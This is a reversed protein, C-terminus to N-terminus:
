KLIDEEIFKDQESQILLATDLINETRQDIIASTFVIPAYKIMGLKHYVYEEYKKITNPDKDPILDWKNAIIMVNKKEQALLNGLRADQRPIDKTIDIVLGILTSHKLRQITKHVSSDEITQRKIKVPRRLGATDVLTILTDKYTLDTDIPDRTTHPSEHVLVREEGLLANVLSSKGVNPQGVFALKILAEDKETKIKQSLNDIIVDLLDGTGVGTVASVVHPDGAGLTYFEAAAYSLKQSDAKNAVLLMNKKFASLEKLADKDAPTIGHKTDVVFLISDAKELAEKTNKIVKQDIDQEQPIDLGATDVLTFSVGNWQITTENVDRTTGPIASVVASPQEKLKNYLKSKGVNSRGALVVTPLQPTM